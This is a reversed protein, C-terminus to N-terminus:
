EQLLTNIKGLAQAVSTETDQYASHVKTVGDACEGIAKQLQGLGYKWTSQFSNAASVLASPGIAGGETGGFAALAQEMQTGADSLTKAMQGLVDLDVKYFDAMRAM